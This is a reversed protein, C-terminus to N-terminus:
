GYAYAVFDKRVIIARDWQNFRTRVSWDYMTLVNGMTVSCQNLLWRQEETMHNDHDQSFISAAEAMSVKKERMIATIKDSNSAEVEIMEEKIVEQLLQGIVFLQREVGNLEGVKAEDSTPPELEVDAESWEDLIGQERLFTAISQLLGDETTLTTVPPVVRLQTVNEDAM